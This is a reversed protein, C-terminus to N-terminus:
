GRVTAEIVSNLAGDSVHSIRLGVKGLLDAYEGLTREKGGCAVAMQMDAMLVEPRREVSKVVAEVLLLKSSERMATRVVRLIKLAQADNWDHLINKLLYADAGPAVEDFFSSQVLQVRTVIEREVFLRKALELNARVECLIGNMRPNRVLLESLLGGSGGGVDCLTGITEWSYLKAIIPAEQMTVGRMASAFTDGENQHSLFWDWIEKGHHHIFGCEGTAINHDLARWADLNSSSTLYLVADHMSGDVTARLKESTRNNSFTGRDSHVFVGLASLTRLLRYLMAPDSNSQEALESVSQKGRALLDAIELRVAVGLMASKMAGNALQWLVVEAPAVVDPIKQVVRLAAMARAITTASPQDALPKSTLKAM